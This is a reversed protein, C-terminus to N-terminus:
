AAENLECKSFDIGCVLGTKVDRVFTFPKLQVLGAEWGRIKKLDNIVLPGGFYPHKVVDEQLDHGMGVCQVGNIIMVHECDLVCSYVFNCPMSTPAAIKKSDIFNQSVLPCKHYM